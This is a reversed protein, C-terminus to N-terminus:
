KYPSWIEVPDEGGFLFSLGLNVFLTNRIKTEDQAITAASAEGKVRAAFTYDRVDLRIAFWRSLFIRFGLGFTGVFYNGTDVWYGSANKFETSAMGGGASLYFDAHGLVRNFLTWKGYIPSFQINIGVFNNIMALDANSPSLQADKKVEDYATTYHNGFRLGDGKYTAPDSGEVKDGMAFPVKCSMWIAELAFAEDLHYDFALTGSYHQTFIDDVSLGGFLAVEFKNKVSYDRKQIVHVRENQSQAWVTPALLCVTLIAFLVRTIRTM